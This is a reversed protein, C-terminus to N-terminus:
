AWLLWNSHIPFITINEMVFDLNEIDKIVKELVEKKIKHTTIIIPIPKNLNEEEPIQLIKEVSIDSDTFFKTITSLVGPKDLTMIRLYYSNILESVNIKEFDKLKEFKFGLSNYNPNLSIEYIDSIVSSATPKGGAGQGELFLNDLHDTEINIANLVGDVNSLPNNFDILKPSTINFIKNNEIYAESILKIKYGIKKAFNIDEIKINNIGEIYNNDFNLNSGFSLTSLITLKHAADFGGIDLISEQDSTFGKQKAIELVKEFSINDNDMKTLIFNTTGNLIGSIKKISNLFINNKIVKIIPIGGAVAAEFLFSSNNKEALKFLHQGNKAILAKNGTIVHIKKNLAKEILEFSIGKEEGILEIIIDCNKVEIMDLPNDFWKYKSVNFDRKKNINKGSIGLINIKLSSKSIILNKNKELSKILSSGVNGIGAICINIERM